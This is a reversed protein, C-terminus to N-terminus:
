QRAPVAPAPPLRAGARERRRRDPRNPPCDPAAPINSILVLLAAITAAILDGSGALVGVSAAGWLTAATNLGRVDAGERIIVGAGLFGIGSAVQAAIRTPNNEGEVLM